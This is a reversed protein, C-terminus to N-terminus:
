EGSQPARGPPEPAAGSVQQELQSLRDDLGQLTDQISRLEATIASVDGAPHQARELARAQADDHVFTGRGQQAVVLGEERLVRVASQVTMPAIGYHEALDRNSPLRQGAALEGSAIATRLDDAVQQFPQRPDDQRIPM